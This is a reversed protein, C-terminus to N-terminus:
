VIHEPQIEVSSKSWCSQEVSDGSWTLQNVVGLCLVNGDGSFTAHCISFEPRTLYNTLRVDLSMDLCVSCMGGGGGMCVCAYAECVYVNCNCGRTCEKQLHTQFLGPVKRM